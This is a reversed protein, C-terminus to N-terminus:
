PSTAHALEYRWSLTINNEGARGACPECVWWGAVAALEGDIYILPVRERLWPAIGKEQFLKKLEHTGNRGPLRCREGGQRYRVSIEGARWIGEAIGPNQTAEASLEGNGPLPLSGIGGWPLVLDPNLDAMPPMLYLGDRYRRVEGEKWAVVPTKDQRAPLAEQLIREIVAQSPM